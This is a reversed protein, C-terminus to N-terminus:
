GLDSDFTSLIVGRFTMGVRFTQFPGPRIEEFVDVSEQVVWLMILENPQMAHSADSLRSNHESYGLLHSVKLYCLLRIDFLPEPSCEKERALV